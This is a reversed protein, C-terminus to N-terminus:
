RKDSVHWGSTRAGETRSGEGGAHPIPLHLAGTSILERSDHSYTVYPFVLGIFVILRSELNILFLLHIFLWMLWATVGGVIVVRRPNEQATL